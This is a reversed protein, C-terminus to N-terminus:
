AQRDLFTVLADNFEGASEMNSLHRAGEIVLLESGAIQDRIVEHAAVPTGEDDSGVIILTPKQIASIQETLDLQSIAHCCGVFCFVETALIMQRVREVEAPQAAAFEPSFWRELTSPAQAAMGENQATEIREKWMPGSEPPMRSSTDCLVLSQLRQPARLALTQGIMGGMSLGVFHVSGMDLADLMAEVDDSLMDLSYAGTRATSGGHGRTDYRLVRYRDTLVAAQADWMSLNAMLSHSFVVVPGDEPGEIVLNVDIGNVSVQM